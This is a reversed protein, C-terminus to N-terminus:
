GLRQNEIFFLINKYSIKIDSINNKSVMLYSKPRASWFIPRIGEKSRKENASTLWPVDKSCTGQSNWM